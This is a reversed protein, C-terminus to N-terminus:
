DNRVRGRRRRYARRLAGWGRLVVVSMLGLVVGLAILIPFLELPPIFYGMSNPDIRGYSEAAVTVSGSSTLLM